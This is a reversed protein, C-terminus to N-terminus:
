CVDYSVRLASNKGITGDEFLRPSLMVPSHHFRSRRMPDTTKGLKVGLMAMCRGFKIDEDGLDDDCLGKERAAFRRLAERSVVYGPGGGHYGPQVYHMITNGFYVPESANQSSLFYRLNEVFVYTDDDAKMFWDADNYHHKYVYDFTTMTKMTLHGRGKKVNIDITPFRADKHESAFLVKNCRRTWTARVHVAKTYLNKESTM